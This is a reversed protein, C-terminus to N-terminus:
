WIKCIVEGGLHKKRAESGTLLGKPTSIITKGLGGFVRPINDKNVYIRLSPKSVRVINSIAPQKDIYKLKIIIKKQHGSGSVKAEQLFGNKVILKVLEENMKSYGVVVEPKKALYGNKIRILTDAIPDNFM